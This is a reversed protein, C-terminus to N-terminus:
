KLLQILSAAVGMLSAIISLWISVKESKSKNGKFIIYVNAM